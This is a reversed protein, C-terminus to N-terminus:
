SGMASYKEVGFKWLISGIFYFIVIWLLQFTFGSLLNSESTSLIRSPFDLIYPFPTCLAFNRIVIPFSELPAVMGSLFFYPILLLREIASARESWFCICSFAWHIFFRVLFSLFTALVFFISNKLGPLWFFDPNFLFVILLIILVFPIRSIQEAIHSFLYRFFPHLPQLLYSSLKGEIFDEEFTVMVWVATFQRVIFASIFYRIIFENTLNLSSIITSENWISLMILPLLGSLAWLAIEARYELMLSFQSIFLAKSISGFYKINRKTLIFKM